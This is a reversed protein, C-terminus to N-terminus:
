SLVVANYVMHLLVCPYLKGTKKFLWANTAGVLFVPPWDLAPHYIAFFAASGLIAAWGNWKGQWERDLARYLLGRFLFEEAFPAFFVAMVFYSIRLDQSEAMQQAIKQVIEQTAPLHALLSQYGRGLMGLALGGAAGMLLAPLLKPDLLAYRKLFPEPPPAYLWDYKGANPNPIEDPKWLWVRDALVERNSLFRTVGVTVAVACFCYGFAQAIALNSRGLVGLAIGSVVAGIEILISIAVMAHMLTPPKPLIEAWPDYLFPLHARFNQWTAAATIWSYVIGMVALHWQQTCIGIAFTLMGLQTAFRRGAPVRKVEGSESTVTVLTVSKEAMSRGFIYWAIAVLAIKWIEHPFLFCAFILVIAVLGSSILTWLWAKAKLLSELGRPWTLAIWLASGESALSKPGLVWLFYTGFLIAAGCLYNWAEAAHATLFRMNFAQYGAVTLPILITQVIASRDRIFWLFEKRYLPERGFHIPGKRNASPAPDGKAFQGAIGRQTGWVSFAVAVAILGASATWCVALGIPFSFKGSPNAGLFLDLWPWPLFTLHNLLPALATVLKTVIYLSVLFFMMTAYGAWSMLGVLGGRTRPPFRLIVGIEIAKGLCAAAVTIPIGILLAAALGILPSSYALGYLFGAFLPATWYIPNAALPSLMEAFFIAGTPIPHSYLWEWMPHRRRQIDLELGEGQFVLMAFWLALLASGVLAPLRGTGPLGRLGPIAQNRAILEHFGNTGVSRALQRQIEEPSGGSTRAIRGAESCFDPLSACDYSGYGNGKCLHQVSDLFGQSVVIKGRNAPDPAARQAAEIALSIAFAAMIHVAAMFLVGFLVGLFSWNTTSKKARSNLLEQQRRQRGTARRRASVLLIRVTQWFTPPNAVPNM